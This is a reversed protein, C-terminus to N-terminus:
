SLIFCFSYPIYVTLKQPNLPQPMFERKSSQPPTVSDYRFELPSSSYFSIGLTLPYINISNWPCPPPICEPIESPLQPPPTLIYFGRTTDPLTHINEPIVRQKSFPMLSHIAHGQEFGLYLNM